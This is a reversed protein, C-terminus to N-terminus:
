VTVRGVASQVASPLVLPCHYIVFCLHEKFHKGRIDKSTRVSVHASKNHGGGLLRNRLAGTLPGPWWGRWGVRCDSGAGRSAGKRLGGHAHLPLMERLLLSQQMGVVAGEQPEHATGTLPCLEWVDLVCRCGSCGATSHGPREGSVPCLCHRQWRPIHLPAAKPVRAGCPQLTHDGPQWWVAVRPVLDRLCFSVQTVVPTPLNIPSARWSCSARLQQFLGM